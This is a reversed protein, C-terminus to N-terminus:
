PSEARVPRLTTSPTISPIPEDAYFVCEMPIEDVSVTQRCKSLQYNRKKNSIRDTLFFLCQCDYLCFFRTFFFKWLPFLRTEIELPLECVYFNQLYPM